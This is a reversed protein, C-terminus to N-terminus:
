WWVVRSKCRAHYCLQGIEEILRFLRAVICLTLAVHELCLVVGLECCPLTHRLTLGLLPVPRTHDLAGLGCIREGIFLVVCREM